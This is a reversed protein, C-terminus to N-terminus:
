RSKILLWSLTRDHHGFVYFNKIGKVKVFADIVPGVHCIVNTAKPSTYFYDHGSVIGGPKVKKEWEFIDEAIYRFRHDADIYVFDLSGDKFNVLAAMSTKRIITCNQYSALRRKAVQYNSEQKTQRKESRGAGSYGLWPDIAYIQLGAQCFKETYEGRYVGIEVGVQYGMEKFFAPLEDRSCNPIKFPLGTEKIGEILKM